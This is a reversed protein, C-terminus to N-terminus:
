NEPIFWKGQPCETSHKIAFVTKVDLEPQISIWYVEYGEPLKIDEGFILEISRLDFLSADVRTADIWPTNAPDTPDGTVNDVTVGGENFYCMDFDRIMKLGEGVEEIHVQNVYFGISKVDAPLSGDLSFSEVKNM